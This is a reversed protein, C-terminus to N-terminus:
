GDPCYPETEGFAAEKACTSFIRTLDITEIPPHFPYAHESPERLGSLDRERAARKPDLEQSLYTQDHRV